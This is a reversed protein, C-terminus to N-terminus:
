DQIESVKDEDDFNVAIKNFRNKWYIWRNGKLSPNVHRPPYGAAIIVAERSMGIRIQGDEIGELDLGEFRDVKEGPDCETGFFRALHDLFPEAAARHNYYSYVQGTSEMQFRARKESLTTMKMETCVPILGPQLYNVAYMRLNIPDPHLNTLNYVTKGKMKKVPHGGAVAHGCGILFALVILGLRATRELTGIIEYRTSM